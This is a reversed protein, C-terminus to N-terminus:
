LTKKERSSFSFFFSSMVWSAWLALLAEENMANSANQTIMKMLEIYFFRELERVFLRVNKYVHASRLRM